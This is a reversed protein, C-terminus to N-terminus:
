KVKEGYPEGKRKKGLIQWDTNKFKDLTSVTMKKGKFIVYPNVAYAIKGDVKTLEIVRNNRLKKFVQVVYDKNYGTHKAFNTASVLAGNSYKLLNDTFNIFPLIMLVQPCRQYLEMGAKYNIKAFDLEVEKTEELGVGTGRKIVVDNPDLRTFVANDIDEGLDKVIEGAEDVIYYQKAM